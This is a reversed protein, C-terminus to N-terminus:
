QSRSSPRLDYNNNARDIRSRGPRAFLSKSTQARSGLFTPPDAQSPIYIYLPKEQTGSDKWRRMETGGLTKTLEVKTYEEFIKM